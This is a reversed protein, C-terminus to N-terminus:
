DSRLINPEVKSVAEAAIDSFRRLLESKDNEPCNAYACIGQVVGTWFASKVMAAQMERERTPESM